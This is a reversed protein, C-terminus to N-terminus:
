YTKGGISFLANLKIKVLIFQYNIIILLGIEHITLFFFFFLFFNIYFFVNAFEKNLTNEIKTINKHQYFISTNDAYLYTHSNSMAHPFFNYIAFM